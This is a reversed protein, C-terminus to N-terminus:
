KLSYFRSGRISKHWADADIRCRSVTKSASIMQPNNGLKV